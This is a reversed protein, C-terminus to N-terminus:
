AVKKKSKKKLYYAQYELAMEKRWKKKAKFGYYEGMNSLVHDLYELDNVEEAEYEGANLFAKVEDFKPADDLHYVKM